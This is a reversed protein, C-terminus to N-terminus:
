RPSKTGAPFMEDYRRLVARQDESAERLVELMVKRREEETATVFFKSFDSTPQPKPKQKRFFSLISKIM